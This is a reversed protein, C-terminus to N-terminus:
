EVALLREFESASVALYGNRQRLVGWVPVGRDNDQVDFAFGLDNFSHYEL